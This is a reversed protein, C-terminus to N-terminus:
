GFSTLAMSGLWAMEVVARGIPTLVHITAPEEQDESSKPFSSADDEAPPPANPDLERRALGLKELGEPVFEIGRNRSQCWGLMIFETDVFNSTPM